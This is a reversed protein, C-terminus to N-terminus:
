ILNLLIQAKYFNKDKMAQLLPNEEVERRDSKLADFSIKTDNRPSQKKIENNASSILNSRPSFDVKRPSIKSSVVSQTCSSKECSQQSVAHLYQHSVDICSVEHTNVYASRSADRRSGRGFPSTFPTHLSKGEVQIVRESDRQASRVNQERLSATSACQRPLAHSEPTVWTESPLNILPVNRLLGSSRDPKVKPLLEQKKELQRMAGRTDVPPLNDFDIPIKRLDTSKPNYVRPIMTPETNYIQSVSGSSMGTSVCQPAETGGQYHMQLVNSVPVPHFLSQEEASSLTKEYDESNYYSLSKKPTHIPIKEM